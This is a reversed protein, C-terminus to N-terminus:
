NNYYMTTFPEALKSPHLKSTLTFFECFSMMLPKWKEPDIYDKGNDMLIHQHVHCRVIKMEIAAISGPEDFRHIKEVKAELQIPCEEALPADVLDAKAPYLAAKKFKNPEYEYGMERKSAPFEKKGTLLALRDVAAVLDASPLNLVCERERELNTYTQSHQSLGAMCSQNIWWVSSFPALNFSGDENATSILVVPTGFYLIKPEIVKHMM